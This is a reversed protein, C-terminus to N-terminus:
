LGGLSSARLTRAAWRLPRTIRWSRSSQLVSIERHAAALQAQMAELSRSSQRVATTAPAEGGYRAAMVANVPAHATAVELSCRFPRDVIKRLVAHINLCPVRNADGLSWNPTPFEPQAPIKLEDILNVGAHTVFLDIIEYENAAALEKFFLPTYCYYGHDLYGSAPLQHYVVGGVKMADHIVEFSNWQNFIHETTGFNLVVDFASTLTAPLRDFNLDLIETKIGPCVDISHYDINTLDALESLLTTRDGPRPTSFHVLRKIEAELYDASVTSGQASVFERLQAAKIHYVNQPGVDLVRNKQATLLGQKQLYLARDLNMAVFMKRKSIAAPGGAM